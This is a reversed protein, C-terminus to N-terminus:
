KWEKRHGIAFHIGSEILAHSTTIFRTGSPMDLYVKVNPIGSVAREFLEQNRGEFEIGEQITHGEIMPGVNRNPGSTDVSDVFEMLGPHDDGAHCTDKCPQGGEAGCSFCPMNTVTHSTM